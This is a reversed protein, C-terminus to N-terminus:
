DMTYTRFYIIHMLQKNDEACHMTVQQGMTGGGNTKTLDSGAPEDGSQYESRSFGFFNDGSVQLPENIHPVERRRGVSNSDIHRAAM